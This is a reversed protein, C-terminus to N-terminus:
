DIDVNVKFMKLDNPDFGAEIYGQAIEELYGDRAVKGSKIYENTMVYAMATQTKDKVSVIIQKKEYCTPYGECRDLQKEDNATIKWVSAPAKGCDDREINAYFPMTLKWGDIYTKGILEAEPCRSKMTAANMNSGYALYLRKSPKLEDLIKQWDDRYDEGWAGKTDDRAIKAEYSHLINHIIFHVRPYFDGYYELFEKLNGDTLISLAKIRDSEADYGHGYFGFGSAAILADELARGLKLSPKGNKSHYAIYRKMLIATGIYSPVYCLDVRVDSPHRWTELVKFSGDEDQFRLIDEITIGSKSENALFHRMKGITTYIEEDNWVSETQRKLQLIDEKNEISSRINKLHKQNQKIQLKQM